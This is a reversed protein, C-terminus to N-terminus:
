EVIWAMGNRGVYGFDKGAVLFSADTGAARKAERFAFKRAIFKGVFQTQIEPGNKILTVHIMKFSELTNCEPHHPDLPPEPRYPREGM